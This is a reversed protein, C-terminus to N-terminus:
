PLYPGLNELCGARTVRCYSHYGCRQSVYITISGTSVGGFRIYYLQFCYDGAPLYTMVPLQLKAMKHSGVGSGSAAMQLFHGAETQYSHDYGGTAACHLSLYM